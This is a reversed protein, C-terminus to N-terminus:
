PALAAEHSEAGGWDNLSDYTVLGGALSRGAAEEVAFVATEGPLVHGSGAKFTEGGAKLDVYSLNVVYPTPNAARLMPGEPGDNALSWQLQGGAQLASGPLGPPRYMLKIRTRFVFRLSGSNDESNEVKPPVELVNLWFLSEKDAPLPEGTYLIRLAQGDGPELRFLTPSLVFPVDIAVPSENDEGKDLWSQVLIPSKGQNSLQVTAEREPAAFIVRTGHIIVGAQASHFSLLSAISFLISFIM